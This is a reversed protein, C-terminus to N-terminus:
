HLQYKVSNQVIFEFGNPFCVLLKRVYDLDITVIEKHSSM